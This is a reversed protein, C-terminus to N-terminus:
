YDMSVDRQDLMIKPSKQNTYITFRHGMLYHKWKEVAMVIDMMEWEYVLKIHERNAMGRSFYSILCQDQTLFVGFM